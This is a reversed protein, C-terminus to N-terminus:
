LWMQTLMDVNEFYPSGESIVEYKYKWCHQVRLYEVTIIRITLRQGSLAM